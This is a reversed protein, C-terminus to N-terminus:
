KRRLLYRCREGGGDWVHRVEAVVLGEARGLFPDDLSAPDGAQARPEGPCEAAVAFAADVATKLAAGPDEPREAACRTRLIGLAAAEASKAAPLYKGGSLAYLDSVVDCYRARRELSACRVGGRGGFRIEERGAGGSADFVAGRVRPATLLYEACFRAAVQWESMGKEVTVTGAFVRGSGKWGAFGYPRIHREYVTPLSPLDYSQPVAESDLLLAARSRATLVASCGGGSSVRRLVDVPGDFLLGGAGDRVRLGPLPGCDRRLPFVATLRDAPAEESSDFRFSAPRPLETEEGGPGVGFFIRM